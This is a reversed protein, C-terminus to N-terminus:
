GMKNFIGSANNGSRHYWQNELQFHRRRVVFFGVIRGLFFQSVQHFQL